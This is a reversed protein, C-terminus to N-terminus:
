LLQLGQVSFPCSIHLSPWTFEQRHRSTIFLPVPRSLLMFGGVQWWAWTASLHFAGLASSLCYNRWWYVLRGAVSATDLNLRGALRLSFAPREGRPGSDTLEGGTEQGWATLDSQRLRIRREGAAHDEVAERAGPRSVNCTPAYRKARKQWNSDRVKTNCRTRNLAARVGTKSSLGGKWHVLTEFLQHEKRGVVTRKWKAHFGLAPEAMGGISWDPSWDDGAIQRSKEEREELVIATSSERREKQDDDLVPDRTM